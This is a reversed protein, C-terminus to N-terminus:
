STRILVFSRSANKLRHSLGMRELLDYIGSKYVVDYTNKLYQRMLEGTWINGDLGVDAPRQNL